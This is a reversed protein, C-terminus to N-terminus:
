VSHVSAILTVIRGLNIIISGLETNRLGLTAVCKQTAMIIWHTALFFQLENKLELCHMQKFLIVWILWTGFIHTHRSCFDSNFPTADKFLNLVM